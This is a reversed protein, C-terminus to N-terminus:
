DAANNDEENEFEMRNDYVTNWIEDGIRTIVDIGDLVYDNLMRGLIKRNKETDDAECARLLDDVDGLVEVLALQKVIRLAKEIEENTPQM